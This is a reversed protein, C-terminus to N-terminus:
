LFRYAAPNGHSLASNRGREKEDPQATQIPIERYLQMSDASIVEGGLRLALQVALGTKGSATPGAVVILPIKTQQEESM